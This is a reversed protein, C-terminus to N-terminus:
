EATKLFLLLPLHDSLGYGSRPNYSVPFRNAGTFPPFRLVQCTDFDWDRDNFLEASLLFHDITEWSNRYYYSGDQLENEWPTYLCPGSFFQARPPKERSLIIYDDMAAEAEALRAAAPHDPLLASLAAGGRLLFENHNENLDGMIIVPTDPEEQQLEELRRRIIRASARRLSETAEDGGVKSKWHCVFFILPKGGPELHVELMPRPATERGVTISHIRTESLPFRSLVGLGLSMGPLNGFFSHTYGCNVLPGRVLDELIGSNEIEVLGIFDPVEARLAPLKNEEALSKIRIIAQGIALLRATYKERTWGAAERYDSYELGTEEGDFLSEVNWVVASFSGEDEIRDRTEGTGPILECGASCFLLFVLVLLLSVFGKHIRRLKKMMSGGSGYVAKM